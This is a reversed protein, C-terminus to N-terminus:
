SSLSLLLGPSLLVERPHSLSIEVKGPSALALSTDRLDQLFAGVDVARHTPPRRALGPRQVSQPQLPTAFTLNLSSTPPFLCLPFDPIQPGIKLPIGGDARPSEDRLVFGHHELALVPLSWYPWIGDWDIDGEGLREVLGLVPLLM